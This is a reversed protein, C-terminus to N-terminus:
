FEKGQYTNNTKLKKQIENLVARKDASWLPM